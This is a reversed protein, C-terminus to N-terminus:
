LDSPSLHHLECQQYVFRRLSKSRAAVVVLVIGVNTGPPGVVLRQKLSANVDAAFWQLHRCCSSGHPYPFSLPAHLIARVGVRFLLQAAENDQLERRKVYGKPPRRARRRGRKARHLNPWYRRLELAPNRSSRRPHEPPCGDRSRAPPVRTMRGSPPMGRRWYARRPWRR